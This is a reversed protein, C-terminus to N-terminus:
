RQRRQRLAARSRRKAAEAVQGRGRGKNYRQEKGIEGDAAKKASTKKLEVRKYM